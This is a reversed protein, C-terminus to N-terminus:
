ASHTPIDGRAWGSKTQECFADFSRAAVADRIGAMLSQYYAINIESLLM